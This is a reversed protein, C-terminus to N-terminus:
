PKKGMIILHCPWSAKKFIVKLNFLNFIQELLKFDFIHQHLCRNNYNDESRKRFQDMTGIPPGLSLDHLSLIEDLHTLDHETTGQDYDDMLHEFTTFPRNHDFTYNKDPVILLLVGGKKLVRLWEGIAKIPNAIHELSHSSLVFDYKESDIGELDTADKIYQYGLTKDGYNYNHGETILNEWVTNTSFNCGDVTDAVSYVPIYGKRSFIQSPGGIELGRKGTTCPKVKPFYHYKLSLKDLKRGLYSKQKNAGM